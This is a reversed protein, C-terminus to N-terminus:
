RNVLVVLIVIAVLAPFARELIQSATDWRESDPFSKRASDVADRVPSLFIIVVAIRLVWFWGPQPGDSIAQGLVNCEAVALVVMTAAQVLVPYFRWWGDGARPDFKEEELPKSISRLELALALAIIPIVQAIVAASERSM